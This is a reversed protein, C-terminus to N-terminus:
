KNIRKALVKKQLKVSLDNLSKELKNNDDYSLKGGNKAKMANEKDIIKQHQAILDNKEELTLQSAKFDANIEKFLAEQRETVTITKKVALGAGATMQFALGTVLILALSKRGFM